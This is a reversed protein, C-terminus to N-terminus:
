CSAPPLAAPCEPQWRAAQRHDWRSTDSLLVLVSVDRRHAAELAPELWDPLRHLGAEVGVVVQREARHVLALVRDHVVAPTLDVPYSEQLSFGARRLM